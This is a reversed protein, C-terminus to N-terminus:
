FSSINILNGCFGEEPNVSMLVFVATYLHWGVAGRQHTKIELLMSIVMLIICYVAHVANQCQIIHWMVITVNLTLYNLKVASFNGGTM